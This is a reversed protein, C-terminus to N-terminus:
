TLPIGVKRLVASSFQIEVWQLVSSHPDNWLRTTEYRTTEYKHRSMEYRITLRKTGISKDHHSTEYRYIKQPFKKTDM